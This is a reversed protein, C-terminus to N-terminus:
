PEGLLKTLLAVPGVAASSPDQGVRTLEAVTREAGAEPTQGALGIAYGEGWIQHNGETSNRGNHHCYRM